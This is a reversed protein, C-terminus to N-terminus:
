TQFHTGVFKKNTGENTCRSTTLVKEVWLEIKSGYEMMNQTCNFSNILGTSILNFGSTLKKLSSM